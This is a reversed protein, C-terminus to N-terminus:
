APLEPQPLLQRLTKPREADAACKWRYSQRRWLYSQQYIRTDEITALIGQQATLAGTVAVTNIANGHIHAGGNVNNYAEFFGSTSVSGAGM